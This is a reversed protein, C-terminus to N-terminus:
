RSNEPYLVKYNNFNRFILHNEKILIVTDASTEIDTKITDEETFITGNKYVGLVETKEITFKDIGVLLVFFSLLYIFNKM